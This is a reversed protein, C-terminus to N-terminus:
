KLFEGKNELTNQPELKPDLDQLHSPVIDQEQALKLLFLIFHSSPNPDCFGSRWGRQKLVLFWIGECCQYTHLFIYRTVIYTPLYTLCKTTSLFTSAIPHNIDTHAPILNPYFSKNPIEIPIYILQLHVQCLSPIQIM